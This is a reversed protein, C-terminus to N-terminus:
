RLLKDGMDEPRNGAVGGKLNDRESITGKAPPIAQTASIRLQECHGAGPDTPGFQRVNHEKSRQEADCPSSNQTDASM